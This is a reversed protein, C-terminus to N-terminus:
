EAIMRLDTPMQFLHLVKKALKVIGDASLNSEVYVGSGKIEMGDRLEGGESLKRGDRSFYPRKKGKLTLIRNAFEGPATRYALECIQSLVGRWNDVDHREDGLLFASVRRGSYGTPARVRKSSRIKQEPVVLRNQENFIAHEGVLQTVLREFKQRNKEGGEVLFYAFTVATPSKWWWYNKEYEMLRRRLDGTEGIRVPRKQADYVVYVCEVGATM